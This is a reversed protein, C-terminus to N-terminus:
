RHCRSSACCSAPLLRWCWIAPPAPRPSWYMIAGRSTELAPRQSAGTEGLRAVARREVDCRVSVRDDRCTRTCWRISPSGGSSDPRQIGWQGCHVCAGNRPRDAFVAPRHVLHLDAPLRHGVLIVCTLASEHFVCSRRRRKRASLRGSNLARRGACAPLVESDDDAVHSAARRGVGPVGDLESRIDRATRRRAISRSRSGIRRM